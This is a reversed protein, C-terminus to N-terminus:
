SAKALIDLEKTLIAEINKFDKYSIRVLKINHKKCYENKLKDHYQL